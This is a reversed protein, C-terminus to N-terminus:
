KHLALSKNYYFEGRFGNPSSIWEEIKSFGESFSPPEFIGAVKTIVWDPLPAGVALCTKRALLNRRHNQKICLEYPTNVWVCVIETDLKKALKTFPARRARTSNTADYYVDNLQLFYEVARLAMDWVFQDHSSDGKNGVIGQRIIDATIIRGQRIKCLSSKGSAPLGCLLYLKTKRKSQLIQTM